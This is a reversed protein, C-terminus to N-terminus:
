LLQFLLTLGGALSIAGLVIAVIGAAPPRGGAGLRLSLLGLIIAALAPVFLICLPLSCIGMVLAIQARRASKYSPISPAAEVTFPTGCSPCSEADVACMESCRPCEIAQSGDARRFIRPAQLGSAAYAHIPTPDEGGDDLLTAARPRGTRRNVEPIMIKAGCSPCRGAQGTMGTHSELLTECRPCGFNFELRPGLAPRGAEVARDDAAPPPVRVISSCHPCQVDRGQWARRATMPRRCDRCVITFQELRSQAM